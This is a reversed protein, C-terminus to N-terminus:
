ARESASLPLTVRLRFGGGESIPGYTLTGGVVATRETLGILGHGTSMGAAATGDGTGNTVQIHLADAWRLAVEVPTGPAHRAANTIAEQVVRYAALSVSPDVAAAIGEVVCRIDIGGTRSGVV